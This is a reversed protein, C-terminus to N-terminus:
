LSCCQNLIYFRQKYSLPPCHGLEKWLEYKTRKVPNNFGILQMWLELNKVGNLILIYSDSENIYKSKKIYYCPKFGLKILIIKVDEILGNSVSSIVIRPYYYFKTQKKDFFLCGDTDFYGRLFSSLIQFNSSFLIEKPCRVIFTKKGSPFGLQILSNIVNKDRLVFGYTRRSPFYKSKVVVNFCSEFLPKLFLDYYDKEELSGSLDLEKRKGIYRLYGDGSHIGAIESLRSDIM